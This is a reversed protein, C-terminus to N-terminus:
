ITSFKSEQLISISNPGELFLLDLVSVNNFFEFKDSFTQFYHASLFNNKFKPNAIIKQEKSLEHNCDNKIQVSLGIKSQIYNILTANLEHLFQFPTLLIKELENEYYEFYPSRRYASEISRWHNKQWDEAYSIEIDSTKTLHGNVKNVPISLNQLGNANVIECRNRYTQKEFLENSCIIAEKNQLLLYFFSIPPCYCSPLLISSDSNNM